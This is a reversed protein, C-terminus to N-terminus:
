KENPTNDVSGEFQFRVFDSWASAGERGVARVRVKGTNNGAWGFQLHPIETFQISSGWRNGFNMEKDIEYKIPGVGCSPLWRVDVIRLRRDFIIGQNPLVIIPTTPIDQIPLDGQIGFPNSKDAVKGDFITVYFNFPMPMEDSGYTIRGFTLTQGFDKNNNNRKMEDYPRGTIYPAQPKGLIRLVNTIDM